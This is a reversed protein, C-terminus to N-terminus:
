IVSIEAGHHNLAFSGHTPAPLLFFIENKTVNIKPWLIKKLM